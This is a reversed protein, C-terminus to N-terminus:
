KHAEAARMLERLPLEIDHRWDARLGGHLGVPGFQPRTTGKPPHKPRYALVGMCRPQFHLGHNVHLLKFLYECFATGHEIQKQANLTNSSNKCEFVFVLPQQDKGRCVVTLDNRLNSGPALIDFPNRGAKDLSFALMKASVKLRFESSSGDHHTERHKLIGGEASCLYSSNLVQRIANFFNDDTM